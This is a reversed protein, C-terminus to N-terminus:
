ESQKILRGAAHQLPRANMPYLRAFIDLQRPSAAVPQKMVAWLVGETCPPTTLSGIYTYYRRDAPLLGAPDLEGHGPVTVHKELPLDNWIQQVVPQAPGRELVVAVIALRGEPDRHVMQVSMEFQRGEIREESPRRFQLHQLEYRRAGVEIWNGRGVRVEVTHGNDLVEFRGPRYDFGVPRLDVAIGDRLDIPSQREGSACLAYDPRLAGRRQPGVEGAYGWDPGPGAARGARHAAVMATLAQPTPSKAPAAAAPARRAPVQLEHTGRADDALRAGLTAQLRQKLHTMPDDAAVQAVAPVALGVPAAPIAAALASAAGGPHAPLTALALLALALSRVAFGARPHFPAREPAPMTLLKDEM